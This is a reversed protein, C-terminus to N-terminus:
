KPTEVKAEEKGGLHKNTLMVISYVTIALAIAGLILGTYAASRDSARPAGHSGSM